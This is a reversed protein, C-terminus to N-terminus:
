TSCVYEDIKESQDIQFCKIALQYTQDDLELDEWGLYKLRKEIQMRNMNPNDIVCSKLCWIFGLIAGKAMGKLELRQMLARKDENLISM